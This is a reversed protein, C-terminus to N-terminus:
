VFPPRIKIGEWKIQIVPGTEGFLRPLLKALEERDGSTIFHLTGSGSGTRKLKSMELLRFVQRAIAPAPDIV